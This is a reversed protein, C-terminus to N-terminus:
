FNEPLFKELVFAAIKSDIQQNWGGGIRTQREMNMWFIKPKTKKKTKRQKNWVKLMKFRNTKIRCFAKITTATTRVINYVFSEKALQHNSKARSQAWQSGMDTWGYNMHIHNTGVNRKRCRCMKRHTHTHTSYICKSRNGKARSNKNM